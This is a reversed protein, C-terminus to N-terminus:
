KLIFDFTDKGCLARLHRKCEVLDNREMESIDLLFYELLATSHLPLMEVWDSVPKYLRLRALLM